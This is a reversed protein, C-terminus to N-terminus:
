IATTAEWRSPVPWNSARSDTVFHAYESTASTMMKRKKPAQTAMAEEGRWTPTHSGDMQVSSMNLSARNLALLVKWM